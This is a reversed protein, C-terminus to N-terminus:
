RFWFNVSANIDGDQQGLGDGRVAHLWRQPIFLADGSDLRAEWCTPQGHEDTDTDVEGATETDLDDHWVARELAARELGQMMGTGQTAAGTGAMKGGRKVAKEFARRRLAEGGREPDWLRIRKSGALQVLLNPNPDRHLPTRPSLGNSVSSLWLTTAYLDGQGALRVIEPVNIDARPLGSDGLDCQALYLAHQQEEKGVQGGEGTKTSTQSDLADLFMGLPVELREFKVDGERENEHQEGGGTTSTSTSTSTGTGTGAHWHLRRRRICSTHEVSVLKGLQARACLYDMALRARGGRSSTTFWREIAPM